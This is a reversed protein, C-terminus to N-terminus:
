VALIEAEKSQVLRDIEAIVRDTLKQVEDLSRREDDESIAKDKLLKKAQDNADRRLNRVAIRADEGAGRVVKTLDRRREENLAPMPVRLLEGQSSPNLGLDSERIAKEIKPGMGKEWPQVSITRADLLSVNAVQSISVMSGYYEVHVQDLIGPHARGTRIKQLESKFSEISRASKQEFTKKIDAISM